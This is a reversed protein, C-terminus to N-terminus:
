KIISSEKKYNESQIAKSQIALETWNIVIVIIIFIVIVTIM